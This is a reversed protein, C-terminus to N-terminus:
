FTYEAKREGSHLKMAQEFLHIASDIITDDKSEIVEQVTMKKDDMTFSTWLGSTDFPSDEVLKELKQKNTM